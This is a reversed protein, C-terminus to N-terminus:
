FGLRRHVNVTFPLRRSKGYEPPANQANELSGDWLGGKSWAMNFATHILLRGKKRRKRDTRDPCSKEIRDAVSERTFGPGLLRSSSAHPNRGCGGLVELNADAGPNGSLFFLGSDTAPPPVRVGGGGEVRRRMKVM